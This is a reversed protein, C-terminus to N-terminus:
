AARSASRRLRGPECLRTRNVLSEPLHTSSFIMGSQRWAALRRNEYSGGCASECSKSALSVVQFAPRWGARLDTRGRIAGVRVVCAKGRLHVRHRGEDTNWGSLLLTDERSWRRRRRQSQRQSEHTNRPGPDAAEGPAAVFASGSTHLGDAASGTLPPRAPM